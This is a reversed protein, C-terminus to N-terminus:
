ISWWSKIIEEGGQTIVSEPHFQMGYIRLSTHYITMVIGAENRSGVKLNNCITAENIAWSHYLGIEYLKNNSNSESLKGLVPDNSDIILKSKHGHLPHSLNILKAGFYEGIAQHGLCIGLISHSEKYLDIVKMIEGSESPIGPGPSIVIHTYKNLSSFDVTDNKVIEVEVDTTRKLLHYVNYTYSDYNDILLIRKM